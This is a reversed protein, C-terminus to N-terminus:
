GIEALRICVFSKVSRERIKSSGRLAPEAHPWKHQALTLSQHGLGSRYDRETLPLAAHRHGVEQVDLGRRELGKQHRVVDMTGALIYRQLTDEAVEERVLAGAAGMLTTGPIGAEMITRRDLNQMQAATAIKM